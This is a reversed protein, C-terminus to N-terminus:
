AKQSESRRRLTESPLEGFLLKYESSFRGLHSFGYELAVETVNRVKNTATQIHQYIRRLKRAKIYAGPSMGKVKKFRDYLTRVSVHSIRALDEAGIDTRSRADIFNDIQGFFEIESSAVNNQPLNHPFVELLKTAVLLGMPFSVPHGTLDHQDAELLLLDLMRSFPSEKDLRFADTCFQLGSDPPQGFQDYICRNILNVPLNIILKICDDSYDLAVAETPNIIAADGPTLLVESESYRVTCSGEMVMQLHYTQHLGSSNVVVRGGYTLQSLGLSGFTKHCLTAKGEASKLEISHNGVHSKVYSSVEHPSVKNFIMGSRFFQMDM